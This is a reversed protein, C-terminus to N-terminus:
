AVTDVYLPRDTRRTGIESLRDLLQLNRRVGVAAAATRGIVDQQRAFLERARGALEVPLPAPIDPPTWTPMQALTDVADAEGTLLREATEVTLELEDLAERWRVAWNEAM